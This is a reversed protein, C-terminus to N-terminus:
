VAERAKVRLKRSLQLIATKKKTKIEKRPTVEKNTLGLTQISWADCHGIFVRCVIGEELRRRASSEMEIADEAVHRTGSVSRYPLIRFYPRLHLVQEKGKARM